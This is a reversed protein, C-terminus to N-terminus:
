VYCSADAPIGFDHIRCSPVASKRNVLKCAMRSLPTVRRMLVLGAPLVREVVQQAVAPELNCAAQKSGQLVGRIVCAHSFLCGQCAAFLNCWHQNQAACVPMCLSAGPVLDRVQLLPSRMLVLGAPLVREVV